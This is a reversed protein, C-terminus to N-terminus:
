FNPSAFGYINKSDIEYCKTRVEDNSNGEVTYVYGDEYYDVIGIHDAVGDPEWDFFIYDGSKPTYNKGKWQKHEKFWDIGVKCSIFKPVQGSQTYGCQTACWSVFCACWEIRFNFGLWSWYPKGGIQGIQSLAKVVIQQNGDTIMAGTSYFIYQAGDIVHRYTYMVGENKKDKSFYYKKGDITKWGTYITGDNNFFYTKDGIKHMGVLMIFDNDFYYKKGDVTQWGSIAKGSKPSFYYKNGEITNWGYCATGDKGFFYKSGKVTQLGKQMIGNSDFYYLKDDINCLGVTMKGSEDFYYSNNNLYIWGTAMFGKEDFYYDSGNARVIINKARSGDIYFYSSKKEDKFYQLGTCYAGKDSFMYPYNGVYRKGVYKGIIKDVYYVKGKYKVWGYVPLGTDYDYFYRRGNVTQWGRLVYGKPSIIHYNEGILVPTKKNDGYLISGDEQCYYMYKEYTVFGKLMIGKESFIYTKGDIEQMGTLKGLKKECYYREGCYDVWGYVIDHTKNDFYYRVGNINQWGTRLAGNNAFIYYEGNLKQKGTLFKQGDFYFWKGDISNWGNIVTESIDPCTVLVTTVSAEATTVTETSTVDSTIETTTEASTINTDTIITSVVADPITTVAETVAPEEASATISAAALLIGTM